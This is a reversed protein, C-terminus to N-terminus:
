KWFFLVKETDLRKKAEEPSINTYKLKMQQTVSEENNIEGKKVTCGTLVISLSAIILLIIVWEKRM